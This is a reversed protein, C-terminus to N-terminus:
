VDGLPEAHKRVAALVLEEVRHALTGERAFHRELQLTPAVFRSIPKVLRSTSCIFCSDWSHLDHVSPLEYRVAMGHAQAAEIAVKRVTGMLVQDDPATLLAGDAAVAFFNTQLGESISGSEGFMVVENVAAKRQLEELHQRDLVWQVDKITPNSRSAAHAEVEVTGEFSPMPQVYTLLNFGRGAPRDAPDHEGATEATLLMTVQYETDDTTGRAKLDDLAVRIERTLLQRLGDPGQEQLFRQAERESESEGALVALATHHMRGCHMSLEFISSGDVTRATTYAGKFAKLLWDKTM